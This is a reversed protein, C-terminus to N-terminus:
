AVSDGNTETVHGLNVELVAGERRRDGGGDLVGIGQSVSGM